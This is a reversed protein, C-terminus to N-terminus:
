LRSGLGGHFYSAGAHLTIRQGAVERMPLSVVSGSLDRANRTAPARVHTATRYPSRLREVPGALEMDGIRAVLQQFMVNLELRAVGAM